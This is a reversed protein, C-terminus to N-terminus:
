VISSWSMKTNSILHDYFIPSHCYFGVTKDVENLFRVFVILLKYLLITKFFSAYQFFNLKQGLVNQFM